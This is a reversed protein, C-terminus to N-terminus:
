QVAVRRSTPQKKAVSVTLVGNDFRATTAEADPEFPLVLKRAYRRATTDSKGDIALTRGDIALNVDERALGPLELSLNYGAETPAVDLAPVRVAEAAPQAAPEPAREVGVDLWAPNFVVRRARSMTLPLVLM